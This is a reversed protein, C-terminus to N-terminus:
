AADVTKKLLYYVSMAVGVAGPAAFVLYAMGNDDAAGTIGMAILLLGLAGLAVLGLPDTKEAKKRMVRAGDDRRPRLLASPAASHTEDDTLFLAKEAARRSVLAAVAGEGISAARWGDIAGAAALMDGNMVHILVDSSEFQEVGISFGFSALADFQPQTLGPACRRLVQAVEELDEKLLFEAEGEGVPDSPAGARVHGYGVVFRGDDLALPARRFGEFRKVLEICTLSPTGVHM